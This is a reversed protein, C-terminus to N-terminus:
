KKICKKTKEDMMEGEKCMGAYIIDASTFATADNIAKATSQGTFAFLLGLTSVILATKTM